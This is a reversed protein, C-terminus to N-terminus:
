FLDSANLRNFDLGNEVSVNEIKTFNLLKNHTEHM